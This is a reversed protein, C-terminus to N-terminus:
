RASSSATSMRCTMRESRRKREKRSSCRSSSGRLERAPVEAEDDDDGDDDDFETEADREERVGPEVEVLFDTGRVGFSASPTQVEFRQSGALKEVVSRLSGREVRLRTTGGLSRALAELHVTTNRDM